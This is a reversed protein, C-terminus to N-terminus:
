EMRMVLSIMSDFPEVEIALTQPPVSANRSQCALQIGVKSDGQSGQRHADEGQGHKIKRLCNKGRGNDAPM